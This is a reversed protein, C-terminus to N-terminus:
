CITSDSARLTTPKVIEIKKRTMKISHIPGYKSKGFKSISQDLLV